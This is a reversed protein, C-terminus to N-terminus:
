SGCHCQGQHHMDPQSYGLGGGQYYASNTVTMDYTVNRVGCQSITVGGTESNLYYRGFLGGFYYANGSSIGVSKFSSNEIIINEITVNGDYLTGVLTGSYHNGTIVSTSDFHFSSLTVNRVEAGTGLGEFLGVVSSQGNFHLGTIKYGKGDFIGTFPNSSEGIPVFKSSWNATTSADIDNALHYEGELDCSMDQLGQVDTIETYSSLEWFGAQYNGPDVDLQYVDNTGYDWLSSGSSDYAYLKNNGSGIYVNGDYKGVALGLVEKTFNTSPLVTWVHGGTSTYKRVYGDNDGVYVYDSSVAIATPYDTFGSSQWIQSSNSSKVKELYNDNRGVYIHGESSKDPVAFNFGDSTSEYQSLMTGSSDIKTVGMYNTAYVTNDNDAKISFIDNTLWGSSPDTNEWVHGGTSTFKHVHMDADGVYSNSDFDIAGAATESGDGVASSTWIVGGSSTLKEVYAGQGSTRGTYYIEKNKDIMACKTYTLTSEYYWDYGEMIGDVFADPASPDAVIDVTAL